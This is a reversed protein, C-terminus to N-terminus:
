PTAGSTTSSSRSASSAPSSRAATSGSGSVRRRMGRREHLAASRTRRPRAGDRRGPETHDDRRRGRPRRRGHLRRRDDQDERAPAPRRARRLPQLGREPRRRARRRAMRSSLVTFDVIDAFLLTVDDFRDAIVTRARECGTPSRRRCSTSSCGSTRATPASSWARPPSTPATSTSSGLVGPCRRSWCPTSAPGRVRGRDTETPAAGGRTRRPDAWVEAGAPPRRGGRGVGFSRRILEPAPNAYSSAGTTRSACSPTRTRTPSSTSRRAARHHRHRLPQHLRVRPDAGAPAPVDSRREPGRLIAAGDHRRAGGHVQARVDDPLPEGITCGFTWTIQAAPLRERLALM